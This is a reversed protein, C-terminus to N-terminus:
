RNRIAAHRRRHVAPLRFVRRIAFTITSERESVSFIIYGSVLFFVIVGTASGLFNPVIANFLKKLGVVFASSDDSINMRLYQQFIHTGVVNLFAYARLYELFVLKSTSGVNSLKAACEKPNATPGIANDVATANGM